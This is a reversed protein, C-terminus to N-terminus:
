DLALGLGIGLVALSLVVKTLYVWGLKGLSFGVWALGL